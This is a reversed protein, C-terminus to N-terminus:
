VGVGELSAGANRDLVVAPRDPDHDPVRTVPAHPHDRYVLALAPGFLFKGAFVFWALLYLLEPFLLIPVLLLAVGFAAEAFISPGVANASVLNTPIWARRKRRFADTVGRLVVFDTGGYVLGCFLLTALWGRHRASPTKVYFALLPAYVLGVLAIGVLVCPVLRPEFRGLVGLPMVLLAFALYVLLVSQLCYFGAFQFFSLKEPLTFRPSTLVTRWHARLTQVCGYAWKYSRKRFAAYSPPHKEGMAIEPAYIVRHGALNLRVTLDLDDSFFDPTLGGVERVAQTQLLANHGIFPMWGYRAAPALFAHFAGISESLWRNVTCYTPNDVPVSRFQVVGVGPGVRALAQEITNPALVTSDNDCLLFYAYDDASHDLAYNVAGAKGGTRQPRRLVRVHWARRAALSAAMADVRERAAFDRSDDHIVLHLPGAYTLRTLSELASWDADDCCLYLIGVSPWSARAQNGAVTPTTERMVVFAIASVFFAIGYASAVVEVLTKLVLLAWTAAHLHIGAATSAIEAPYAVAFTAASLLVFRAVHPRPSRNM